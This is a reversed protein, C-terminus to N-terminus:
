TTRLMRRLVKGVNSKPLEDVFEVARPVKYATLSERCFDKIQEESLEPNSRVCFLKVIEGTEDDPVGIVACEVIDSHMSAVDEVENPYVNFGSVIIMDKARDIIRIFGDAEIVAIDGTLFYGDSTFSALTAEERQWYGSMVQPGRVCLQGAEGAPLEQMVDDVVKVETHSVVKGITGIREEGPFNISVVPSTETLGYGETVTCGTAAKWQDAADHTLAMGGSATLCLRSFDSSKFGPERCLAIFLTNLGLFTTIQWNGLEKVFGKFDRPNPILVTHGGDYAVSLSVTFAFIHYLPLPSMVCEAWHEGGASIRGNSQLCNSIMNAHTLVAGKAIGTTGGTYQLIAPQEPQLTVPTERKGIYRNVLDRFSLASPLNFDPEMKKVYKIVLRMLHRKLTPHFDGAQVLIVQEIDTKDVVKEANHAMSQYIVLAKAGSDTFQHEMERPTYLPNTNVVVLGAKLAGFLAIPYQILNPLQIAIRDGPQLSTETQLYVAFASSYDDLQQYTITKGLSTFAPKNAHNRVSHSLIDLVSALGDPNLDAPIDGIPTRGNIM